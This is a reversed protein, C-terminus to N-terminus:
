TVSLRVIALRPPLGMTETVSFQSLMEKGTFTWGRALFFEMVPSTPPASLSASVAGGTSPAALRAQTSYKELDKFTGREETVMALPSRLRSFTTRTWPTVAPPVQPAALPVSM